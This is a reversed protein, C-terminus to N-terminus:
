RAGDDLFERVAAVVKDTHTVLSVLHGGNFSVLEAGLIAAAMEEALAHPAVHDHRGHVVLTASRIAGLRDTCDYRTTADFQAHLASSSQREGGLRGTITSLQMGIRVLWRHGAARPGTSVLVLRRVRDPHDLALSLAIRGGMSIGLVDADPVDLADMLALADAAMQEITYPGPPKSSKGSGRNDVAIVRRGPALGATIRRMDSVSLGLGGLLLLPFGDGTSEYHIEVDNVAV